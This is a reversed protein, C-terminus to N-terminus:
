KAHNVDKVNACYSNAEPIVALAEGILQLLTSMLNIENDNLGDAIANAFSVAILNLKQGYCNGMKEGVRELLKCIYKIIM